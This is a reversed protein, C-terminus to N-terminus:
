AVDIRGCLLKLQEQHHFYRTERLLLIKAEIEARIEYTRIRKSAIRREWVALLFAATFWVLPFEMAETLEGFELRLIKEMSIQPLHETLVEILIQGAGQNFTCTNFAHLMDENENQNCLNCTPPTNPTLRNLREKIPLLLHVLKWLFSTHDPGLGKLRVFHWTLKWDITPNAQETKCQNFERTNDALTFMTVNDEVLLRYWQSSTMTTVNLPTEDRVRKITAFFDPPYYPPFGPDPLYTDELVHYRFLLAHYQNRRFQPNAATELFSRILSALAKYKPSLVGLGGYSTPRIMVTESPKEFMDCYLWSKVNSTIATIDAVRLDVSHCRFWIKSLAFSNISWPRMTLPMFKGAKWPNITNSIRKQLIDGNAKRTQVWTARLEVGVMDLHDSILMYNCSLPLDEQKLNSRWKGLPLLKCKQSAPDRHLKCGSAAEFTASAKDVMVIEETSTVAPKLDDAYSIVKYREEIPPPQGSHQSPPGLVPISTILIGKLRRDLFTILPDIGYAFFFMSPVDGQRLSMRHNKISKGYINNVVVVSVNDRYLNKLRNIIAESLGKKQLVQFVWSMVLYDFAAM